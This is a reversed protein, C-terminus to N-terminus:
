INFKKVNLILKVDDLSIINAKKNNKIIEINEEKSLNEKTISSSYFGQIHEGKLFNEKEETDPFLYIYFIDDDKDSSHYLVHEIDFKNPKFLDIDYFLDSIQYRSNVSYRKFYIQFSVSKRNENFSKFTKM